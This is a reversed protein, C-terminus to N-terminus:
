SSSKQEKVIEKKDNGSRILSTMGEKMNPFIDIITTKRKNEEQM